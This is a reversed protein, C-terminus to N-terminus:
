DAVRRALIIKGWTGILMTDENLLLIDGGVPNVYKELHPNEDLKAQVEGPTDYFRQLEDFEFTIDVRLLPTEYSRENWEDTNIEEGEIFSYFNSYEASNKDVDYLPDSLRWDDWLRTNRRHFKNDEM